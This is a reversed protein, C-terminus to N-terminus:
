RKLSFTITRAEGQVVLGADNGSRPKIFKASALALANITVAQTKGAVVEMTVENGADDYLTTYEGALTDSVLFTMVAATWGSNKISAIMGDSVDVGATPVSAGSPIVCPVVSMRGASVPLPNNAGVEIGGAEIAKMDSAVNQNAM